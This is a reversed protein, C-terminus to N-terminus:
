IKQSYNLIFKTEAFAIEENNQNFLRLGIALLDLRRSHLKETVTATATVSDNLCIPRCFELTQSVLVAGEPLSINKSMEAMALTLVSIHPVLNTQNYLEGDDGVARTYASCWDAGITYTSVPFQFGIDITSFDTKQAAM